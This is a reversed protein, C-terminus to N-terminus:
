VVGTFPQVQVTEGKEIPGADEPLVAFCNARTMSSLIGSGQDPLPTAIWEGNENQQLIARQFEMRGPAKKFRAGAIAPFLPPPSYEKRGAKKWLAAAAFQYFCVMVSVPNGPLGLFDTEGGGPKRVKGYALPRGPRMAVKWFLVEGRKALVTRIFDAEGVSAGGSTIIFDSEAAAKDVAESLAGIDDRVIGFDLPAFGMRELMARLTWRNSDYIQGPALEGSEKSDLARLEDGTSFFAARLKRFVQVQAIGLSSALGLHAPMCLEGAAIATEGARLDEGAARIHLGARRAGPLIAVTGGNEKARTEEKPVVVDVGPPLPAGTMIKVCEGEGPARACPRGAFAEGVVALVTENKGKGKSENKSEGAIDAIDAFRCCYGDMASNAFAPVSFPARIDEALVRGLAAATAVTETQALPTVAATIRGRAQRM